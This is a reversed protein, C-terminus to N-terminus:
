VERFVLGFVDEFYLGCGATEVTAPLLEARDCQAVSVRGHWREMKDDQEM